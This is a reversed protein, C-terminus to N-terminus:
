HRHHYGGDAVLGEHHHSQERPLGHDKERRQEDEGHHRPQQNVPEERLGLRQRGPQLIGELQVPVPALALASVMVLLPTVESLYSYEQKGSDDKEDGRQKETEKLFAALSLTKGEEVLLPREPKEADQAKRHDGRQEECGVMEHLFMKPFVNHTLVKRAYECPSEAHKQDYSEQEAGDVDRGPDAVVRCQHDEQSDKDAKDGLGARMQDEHGQERAAHYRERNKQRVGDHLVTM